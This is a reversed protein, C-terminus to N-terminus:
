LPASWASVFDATNVQAPARPAKEPTGLYVFGLLQENDALGLGQAVRPDYALPGSGWFAGLGLAFAAQLLGQVACGATIQQEVVPVKPHEQLTAVVAVVLPAHLAKHRAKELAQPTPEEPQAQLAAVFLEALRARADGEITLFRWPRLLGHDPARAAARFLIERQQASPAPEGVQVISVRQTLAQIADM